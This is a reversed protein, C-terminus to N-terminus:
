NIRNCLTKGHFQTGNVKAKSSCRSLKHSSLGTSLIIKTYDGSAEFVRRVLLDIKQRLFVNEGTPIIADGFIGCLFRGVQNAPM